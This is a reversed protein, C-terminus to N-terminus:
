SWSLEVIKFQAIERFWEHSDAVEAEHFWRRAEVLKRWLIVNLVRSNKKNLFFFLFHLRKDFDELTKM